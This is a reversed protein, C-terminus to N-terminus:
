RCSQPHTAPDTCTFVTLLRAALAPGLRRGAATQNPIDQVADIGTRALADRLQRYSPYAAALADAANKPVVSALLAPWARADTKPKAGSWSALDRAELGSFLGADKVLGTRTVKASAAIVNTHSQVLEALKAAAKAEPDRGVKPPIVCRCAVLRDELWAITPLLREREPGVLALTPKCGGPLNELAAATAKLSDAVDDRLHRTALDVVVLCSGTSEWVDGRKRLWEISPWADLVRSAATPASRMAFGRSRLVDVLAATDCELRPSCRLALNARCGDAYASLEAAKTAKSAAKKRAREGARMAARQEKERPSLRGPRKMAPSSESEDDDKERMLAEFEEESSDDRLRKGRLPSFTADDRTEEADSAEGTLDVVDDSADDFVVVPRFEGDRAPSDDVLDIVSADM